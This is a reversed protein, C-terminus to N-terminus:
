LRLSVVVVAVRRADVPVDAVVRHEYAHVRSTMTDCEPCSRPGGPTRARIRIWAGQDSVEDIVLPSLGCFVMIVLQDIDRM